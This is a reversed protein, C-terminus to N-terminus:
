FTRAPVTSGCTCWGRSRGLWREGPRPWGTRSGEAGDGRGYVCMPVAAAMALAYFAATQKTLVAVAACLGAAATWGIRGTRLGHVLSIFGLSIPLAMLVEAYVNTRLAHDAM